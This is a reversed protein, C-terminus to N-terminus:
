RAPPLEGCSQAHIGRGYREALTGHRGHRRRGHLARPLDILGPILTLGQGNIDEQHGSRKPRASEEGIWAIAGNSVEVSVSPRPASGTGDILRVNRIVLDM